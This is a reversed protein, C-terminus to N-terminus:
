QPRHLPGQIHRRTSARLGRRQGGLMVMVRKLHRWLPLRHPLLFDLRPLPWPVVPLSLASAVGMTWVPPVRSPGRLQHAVLRPPRRGLRGSRPPCPSRPLRGERRCSRRLRPPLALRDQFLLRQSVRGRRVRREVLVGERGSGVRFLTTLRPARPSMSRRSCFRTMSACRRVGHGAPTCRASSSFSRVTRTTTRGRARPM